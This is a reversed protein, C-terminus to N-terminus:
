DRLRRTESRQDRIGVRGRVIEDAMRAVRAMAKVDHVRVIDAGRDIGIAVTTATGELRDDPASDLARGIFSKRSTGLLIPYGLQRLASLGNLLELNQDPTKGFGIGPDIIIQEHKIGAALGLDISEQLERCVDSILDDYQVGRYYGGLREAQAADKPRSRNHMIVIPCGAAAVLSAMDPDM